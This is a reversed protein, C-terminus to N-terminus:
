TALTAQVVRSGPNLEGAQMSADLSMIDDLPVHNACYHKRLRINATGTEKFLNFVDSGPSRKAGEEQGVMRRFTAKCCFQLTVSQEWDSDRERLRM